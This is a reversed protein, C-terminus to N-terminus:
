PKSNRAITGIVVGIAGLGLSAWEELGLSAGVRVVIVAGISFYILPFADDFTKWSV